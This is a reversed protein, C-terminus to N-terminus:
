MFNTKIIYGLALAIIPSLTMSAIQLRDDRDRPAIQIGKMSSFTFMIGIAWVSNILPAGLPTIFWNWLYALVWGAYAYYLVVITFTILGESITRSLPKNEEIIM